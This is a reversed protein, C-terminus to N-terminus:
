LATKLLESANQLPESATALCIANFVGTGITTINVTKHTSTDIVNTSKPMGDLCSRQQRQFSVNKDPGTNTYSSLTILFLTDSPHQVEWDRKRVERELDWKQEECVYMRTYYDQCIKKLLALVPFPVM